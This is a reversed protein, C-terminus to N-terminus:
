KIRRESVLETVVTIRDPAIEHMLIDTLTVPEDNIHQYTLEYLERLRLVPNDSRLLYRITDTVGASYFVARTEKVLDPM